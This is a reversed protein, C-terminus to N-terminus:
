LDLVNKTEADFSSMVIVYGLPSVRWTYTNMHKSASKVQRSPDYNKSAHLNSHNQKTTDTNGKLQHRPFMIIALM